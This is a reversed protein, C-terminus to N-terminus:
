SRALPSRPPTLRPSALRPAPSSRRPPTLRAPPRLCSRSCACSRSAARRPISHAAVQQYNDDAFAVLRGPWWSPYSLVVHETLERLFSYVRQYSVCADLSHRMGEIAIAPANLAFLYISMTWALVCSAEGKQSCARALAQFALLGRRVKLVRLAAPTRRSTLAAQLEAALAPSAALVSDLVRDDFHMIREARQVVVQQESSLSPLVWEPIFRETSSAVAADVATLLASAAQDVHGRLGLQATRAQKEAAALKAELEAVRATLAAEAAEAREYRRM